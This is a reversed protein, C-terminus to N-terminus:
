VQVNSQDRLQSSLQSEIKLDVQSRRNEEVENLILKPRQLLMQLTKMWETRKTM